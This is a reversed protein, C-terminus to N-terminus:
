AGRSAKLVQQIQDAREELLALATILPGDNEDVKERMLSVLGEVQECYIMIETVDESKLIVDPVALMGLQEDVVKAIPNRGRGRSSTKSKVM